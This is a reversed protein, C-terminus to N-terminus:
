DCQATSPLGRITQETDQQLRKIQPCPVASNKSLNIRKLKPSTYLPTLDAVDTRYLTVTELEPKNALASIDSLERNSDLNVTVLNPLGSLASIDTIKNASIDAAKLATLPSLAKIDELDTVRVSLDELSGLGELGDMTRLWKNGDLILERLAPLGGLPSLAEIENGTLDLYELQTLARLPTLEYIGRQKCTLATIQDNRDVNQERRAEAFCIELARENDVTIPLTNPSSQGVGKAEHFYGGGIILGGCIFLVVFAGEAMFVGAMLLTGAFTLAVPYLWFQMFSHIRADDPNHSDVLIKVPKGIMRECNKRGALSIKGTVRYGEVSVAVPAYTSRSRPGSSNSSSKRRSKKWECHTITADLSQSSTLVSIRDHFVFGSTVLWALALLAFIINAPKFM